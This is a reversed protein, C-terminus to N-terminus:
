PQVGRWVANFHVDVGQLSSNWIGSIHHNATWQGRTCLHRNCRHHFQHGQVPYDGFLVGGITVHVLMQKQASFYFHLYNHRADYGTYYGHAPLVSATAAPAAATAFAAAALVVRLATRSM